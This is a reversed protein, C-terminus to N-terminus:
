QAEHIPAASVSFSVFPLLLVRVVKTDKASKKTGKTSTM